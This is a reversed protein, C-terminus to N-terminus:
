PIVEEGADAPPLYPGQQSTGDPPLPDRNNYPLHWVVATVMAGPAAPLANGEGDTLEVRNRPAWRRPARRELLLAAAKWDDSQDLKRTLRIEALAEARAIADSFGLWAAVSRPTLTEPQPPRPNGFRDLQAGRGARRSQRPDPVWGLYKLWLEINDLWRGYEAYPRARIADQLQADTRATDTLWKLFTSRAIGAAAAAVEPYNGM